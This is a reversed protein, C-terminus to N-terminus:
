SAEMESPPLVNQEGQEIEAAPNTNTQTRPRRAHVLMVQQSRCTLGHPKCGKRETTTTKTGAYGLWERERGGGGPAHSHPSSLPTCTCQATAERWGCWFTKLRCAQYLGIICSGKYHGCWEELLHRNAFFIVLPVRMRMCVNPPVAEAWRTAPVVFTRTGSVGSSPQESESDRASTSAVAPLLPSSPRKEFQGKSTQQRMRCCCVVCIVSIVVHVYICTLLCCGSSSLRSGRLYTSYSAIEARKRAEGAVDVVDGARNQNSSRRLAGTEVDAAGPPRQPQAADDGV